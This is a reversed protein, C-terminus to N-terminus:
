GSDYLWASCPTSCRSMSCTDSWDAPSASPTPLHRTRRRKQDVHSGRAAWPASLLFWLSTTSSWPLADQSACPLGGKIERLISVWFVCRCAASRTATGDRTRQADARPLYMRLNNTAGGEMNCWSGNYNQAERPSGPRCCYGKSIAPM